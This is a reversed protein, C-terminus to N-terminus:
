NLKCPGLNANSVKYWWHNGLWSPLQQTDISLSWVVVTARMFVSPLRPMVTSSYHTTTLIHMILQLSLFIVWSRLCCPSPQSHLCSTHLALSLLLPFNPFGYTSLQLQVHYSPFLFFDPLVIHLMPIQFPAPCTFSSLINLSNSTPISQPPAVSRLFSAASSSFIFLYPPHYICKKHTHLGVSFLTLSTVEETMEWHVQFILQTSMTLMYWPFLHKTYKYFILFFYTIPM